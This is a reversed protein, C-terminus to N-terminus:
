QGVFYKLLETFIYDFVGLFLATIVSLLIVLLTFVVAQRQTPWSVHSLETRVDKLYQIFSTM